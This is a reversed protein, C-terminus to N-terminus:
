DISGYSTQEMPTESLIDVDTDDARNESQHVSYMEPVRLCGVCPLRELCHFGMAILCLWALYLVFAMYLCVVVAIALYIAWHEPLRQIFVAVFFLNIGIVVVTLVSAIVKMVIGNVFDAMIAPSSTFTLVPLLAFPLQLSMVVNLLDNMVTLDQIGEFVALLITPFIAISRTLLVRQWRKWHLDLFGEMVFQGTYTGTMTSSQGAALVGVAWVYMAALGFQCGLFVGGRFIDVEVETSNTNFIEAHPNDSAKCSDYIESSTKGYFGEAFISVVFVNILFSVFLAIAAEIFFYFNAEKVASKKSRDVDRSKVLASHLYLNHPMIIAGIVGVAQLLQKPGCDKCYPIFMGALVEVQNPAVTVYEYGFTVAMILILTAFFAELKRLGYKDLLLFTFTDAITILVGAWLPIKGNSLLYFAIATGIVEQMDSGIIAIEVMIWLLIRPVRPYWRCCVEALHMGTVVGLRASLRQMLLGLITAVLLLWLLKFQALAGSRLDSEINGPDLYAISMLFGPGTFAWLTRFSFRVGESHPIVIKQDFYTSAQTTRTNVDASHGSFQGNPDVPNHGGDERVSQDGDDNMVQPRSQGSEEGDPQSEAEM